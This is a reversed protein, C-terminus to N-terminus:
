QGPAAPHPHCAGHAGMPASSMPAPGPSHPPPASPAPSGPTGGLEPHGGDGPGTGAGAHGGGHTAPDEQFLWDPLPVHHCGWGRPGAGLMAGVGHGCGGGWPEGNRRDRRNGNPDWRLPPTDGPWWGGWSDGPTGPLATVHAGGWVCVREGEVHPPHPPHPAPAGRPRGAGGVVGASGAQRRPQRADGRHCGASPCPPAVVPAVVPM